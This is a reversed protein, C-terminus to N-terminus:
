VLAGVDHMGDIASFVAMFHWSIDEVGGDRTRLHNISLASFSGKHGANPLGLHMELGMATATMYAQGTADPRTERFSVGLADEVARKCAADGGDFCFSLRVQLGSPITNTM